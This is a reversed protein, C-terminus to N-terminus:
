RRDRCRACLGYLPVDRRDIRFKGIAPRDLTGIVDPACCNSSTAIGWVGRRKVTSRRVTAFNSRADTVYFEGHSLEPPEDRRQAGPYLPLVVLREVWLDPVREM